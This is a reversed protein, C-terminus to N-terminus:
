GTYEAGDDFIVPLQMGRNIRKQNNTKQETPRGKLVKFNEATANSFMSKNIMRIGATTEEHSQQLFTGISLGGLSEKRATHKRFSRQIKLAAEEIRDTSNM